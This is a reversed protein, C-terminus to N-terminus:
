GRRAKQMSLISSALVVVDPHEECFDDGDTFYRVGMAAAADHYPSRSTAIVQLPPMRALRYAPPLGLASPLAM